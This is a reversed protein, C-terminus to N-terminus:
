VEREENSAAGAPRPEAPRAGRPRNPLYNRLLPLSRLRFLPSDVRALSAYLDAEASPPRGAAPPRYAVTSVAVAAPLLAVALVLPQARNALVVVASAAVGAAGFLRLLPQLAGAQSLGRLLGPIARARRGLGDIWGGLCWAALWGLAFLGVLLSAPVVGPWRGAGCVGALVPLTTCPLTYWLLAGAGVTAICLLASLLPWRPDLLERLPAGPMGGSGAEAADADPPSSM